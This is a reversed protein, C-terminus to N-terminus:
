GYERCSGNNDVLGAVVNFMIKKKYFIELIKGRPNTEGNQWPACQLLM